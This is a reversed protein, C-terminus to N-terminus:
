SLNGDFDEPVYHFFLSTSQHGEPLAYRYHILERGRYALSDGSALYVARTDELSEDPLFDDWKFIGSGNNAPLERTSLYLAWPSLHNETEPQYDVQFSFSFECAERDIHPTLTAGEIYSAAYVYSPKIEEGAVFSMLKTLNKHFHRALPENHQCYRRDVQTDGFPMFGQGVYERYYNRLAKMQSAPLLNRLVTYRNHRFDDRAASLEKLRSEEKKPRNEPSVLIDAAILKSVLNKNIEHPSKQGAKFAFITEAQEENLWYGIEIETVPTKVWVSPQYPSLHKEQIWSGFKDLNVPEFRFSPSVVLSSCDAEFEAEEVDDLSCTFLPKQPINEPEVLVGFQYLLAREEDDLDQEIDLFDLRMKSLDSFLEYLCPQATKIIELYKLGYGAKPSILLCDEDGSILQTFPNITM